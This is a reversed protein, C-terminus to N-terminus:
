ILHTTSHPAPPPSPQRQRQLHLAPPTPAATVNAALKMGKACHGMSGCMFYRFGVTLFPITTCGSDDRTIPNGETCNKYDNEFVEDVTHGSPYMFVLSDGVVFHKGKAWANYDVGPIWGTADGVTYTRFQLSPMAMCLVM